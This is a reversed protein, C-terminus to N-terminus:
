CCKLVVRVMASGPVEQTYIPAVSYMIWLCLGVPDETRFGEPPNLVVTSDSIGVFIYINNTVETYLRKGSEEFTFEYICGRKLHNWIEYCQQQVNM